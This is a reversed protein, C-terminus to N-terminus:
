ARSVPTVPTAMHTLQGCPGAWLAAAQPHARNDEIRRQSKPNRLCSREGAAGIVAPDTALYTDHHGLKALSIRRRGHVEIVVPEVVLSSLGWIAGSM